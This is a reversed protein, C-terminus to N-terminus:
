EAVSFDRYEFHEIKTNEIHISSVCCQRMNQALTSWKEESVHFREAAIGIKHLSQQYDGVPM